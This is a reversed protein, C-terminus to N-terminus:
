PLVTRARAHALRGEARRRRQPDLRERARTFAVHFIRREEADDAACRRARIEDYALANITDIGPRIVRLGVEPGDVLLDTSDGKGQRGLDALVVVDFELGKAAHITM